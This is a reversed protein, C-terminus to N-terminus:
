KDTQDGKQESDRFDEVIQEDEALDDEGVDEDLACPDGRSHFKWDSCHADDLKDLPQWHL